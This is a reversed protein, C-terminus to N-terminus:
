FYIKLVWFLYLLRTCTRLNFFFETAHNNLNATLFYRLKCTIRECKIWVHVQSTTYYTIPPWMLFIPFMGPIKQFIMSNKEIWSLTRIGIFHWKHWSIVGNGEYSLFHWTSGWTEFFSDPAQVRSVKQPEGTPHVYTCSSGSTNSCAM